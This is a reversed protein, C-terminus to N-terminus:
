VSSRRSGRFSGLWEPLTRASISPSNTSHWQRATRVRSMEVAVAGTDAACTTARRRRRRLMIVIALASFAIAATGFLAFGAATGLGITALFGLIPGACCAACAVTGVGIIAMNEKKTSM